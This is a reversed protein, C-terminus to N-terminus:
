ESEAIENRLENLIHKRLDKSECLYSGVSKWLANFERANIERTQFYFSESWGTDEGDWDYAIGRINSEGGFVGCYVNKGTACDVFHLIHDGHPNEINTLIYKIKHEM